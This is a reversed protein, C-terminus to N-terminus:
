SRDQLNLPLGPPLVPSAEKGTTSTEVLPSIVYTSTAKDGTLDAVVPAEQAM